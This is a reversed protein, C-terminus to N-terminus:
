CLRAAASTPENICESMPLHFNFLQGDALQVKPLGQIVALSGLRIGRRTQATSHCAITAAASHPKHPQHHHGPLM